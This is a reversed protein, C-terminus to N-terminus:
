RALPGHLIDMSSRNSDPKVLLRVRVWTDRTITGRWVIAVDAPEGEPVKEVAIYRSVHCHLTPSAAHVCPDATDQCPIHVHMLGALDVHLWWPLFRRTSTVFVAGSRLLMAEHM